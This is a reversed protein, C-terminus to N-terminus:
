AAMKPICTGERIVVRTGFDGTSGNTFDDTVLRYLFRYEHGALLAFGGTFDSARLYHRVNYGDADRTWFGDLQLTNYTNWRTSATLNTLTTMLASPDLTLDYVECTAGTIATNAALAVNDEGTVCWCTM